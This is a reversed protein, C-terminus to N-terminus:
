NRKFNKINLEYSKRKKKRLVNREILFFIMEKYEKDNRFQALNMFVFFFIKFNIIHFDSPM